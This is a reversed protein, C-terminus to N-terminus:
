AMFIGTFTISPVGYIWPVGIKQFSILPSTASFAYRTIYFIPFTLTIYCTSLMAHLTCAILLIGLLCYCMYRLTDVCGVMKETSM